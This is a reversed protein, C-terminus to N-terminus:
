AVVEYGEGRIARRLDELPVQEESGNPRLRWVRDEGVSLMERIARRTREMTYATLLEAIDALWIITLASLGRGAVISALIASASLTDANPRLTTRLSNWGSRLIPAALSVATLAPVTTFRRWVTAPQKAAAKGFYSLALTATTVAVRGVMESLPEEQLRRENVTLESREAREAKYATLSYVAITSEVLELVETPTAQDPDFHILTNATPVNVRASVVPALDELQRQLEDAHKDLYRLARCGVRVRGPLEHLTSCKLLPDRKRWWM